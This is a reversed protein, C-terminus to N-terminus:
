VQNLGISINQGWIMDMGGVGDRRPGRGLNKRRLKQVTPRVGVAMRKELISAWWFCM